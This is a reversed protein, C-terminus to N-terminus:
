PCNDIVPIGPFTLRVANGNTAFVSLELRTGGIEKPQPVPTVVISQPSVSLPATQEGLVWRVQIRNGQNTYAGGSRSMSLTATTQGTREGILRSDWRAIREFENYLFSYTLTTPKNDCIYSRGNADRFNSEYRLDAIVLATEPNNGVQVAPFCATLTLGLVVLTAFRKMSEPHLLEAAFDQASFLCGNLL